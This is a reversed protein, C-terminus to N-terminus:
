KAQLKPLLRTNAKIEDTARALLTDGPILNGFIEVKDELTIGNRVDIWQVLGNKIRIVFRKELTTAVASSPVLFSADKRGLKLMANAFM